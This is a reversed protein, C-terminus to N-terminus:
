FISLILPASIQWNVSKITLELTSDYEVCSKQKYSQAWRRNQSAGCQVMRGEKEGALGMQLLKWANTKILIKVWINFFKRRQLNQTKASAM